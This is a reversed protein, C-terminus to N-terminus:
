SNHSKEQMGETWTLSSQDFDIIETSDLYRFIGPHFGGSVIGYTKSGFHFTVCGHLRREIKMTPGPTFTSTTLEVFWSWRSWTSRSTSGDQLGGTVLGHTSNIKFSCHYCITVPFDKGEESGSSTILETSKLKDRNEDKGGIILTQHSSVEIASAHGRSTKLNPFPMWQHQQYVFCQKEENGGCVVPGLATMFGVAGYVKLPYDPLACQTKPRPWIETKRTTDYYYRKWGSVVLVKTVPLFAYLFYM